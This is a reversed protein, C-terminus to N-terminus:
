GLLGVKRALGVVVGWVRLEALTEVQREVGGEGSRRGRAGTGDFEIAMLEVGGEGWFAGVCGHEAKALRDIVVTDGSKIGWEAHDGLATWAYCSEPRSTLVRLVDVPKGSPSRGALEVLEAAKDRLAKASLPGVRQASGKRAAVSEKFTGLMTGLEEALSVPVRMPVTGEGFAGSGTKRGAGARAGGRGAAAGGQIKKGAKKEKEQQAM